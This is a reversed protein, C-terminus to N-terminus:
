RQAEPLGSAALIAARALARLTAADREDSFAIPALATASIRGPWPLPLQPPLCARTGTIVLPVVPLRARQAAVFAGNHFPLLGPEPKFTGEPFFALAQGNSASRLVRLTDRKSGRGNNRAVFHAGIRTLLWGAGPVAHMERKIVFGFAPPLTAALLVGDLYSEHNAVVVCPLPLQDLDNATVRIGICFLASRAVSRILRRRAALGPLLLLPLLTLVGLLLFVLWALLGVIARLLLPIRRPHKASM